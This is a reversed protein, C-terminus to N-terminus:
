MMCAFNFVKIKNELKKNTETLVAQQLKLEANEEMEKLYKAKPVVDQTETALSGRQSESPKSSKKVNGEGPDTPMRAQSSGLQDVICRIDNDMNAVMSPSFESLSLRFIEKRILLISVTAYSGLLCNYRQLPEVSFM